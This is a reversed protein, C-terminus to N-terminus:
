SGRDGNMPEIADGVRIEGTKIIRCNLGARHVLAPLVPLGTREQLTKCPECLRMGELEVGGIRIRSGVLENLSIGRTLINRRTMSPPLVQGTEKEFWELQEIEILTLEQDPKGDDRSWSGASRYRDGELGEGAIAQVIERSVMPQGAVPAIWIELVNSM